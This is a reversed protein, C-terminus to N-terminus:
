RLKMERLFTVNVCGVISSYDATSTFVANSSSTRGYRSSGYFAFVGWYENVGITSCLLDWLVPLEGYQQLSVLSWPIHLKVSLLQCSNRKVM